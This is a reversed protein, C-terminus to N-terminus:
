FEARVGVSVRNRDYDFGAFDSTSETYNYSVTGYLNDTFRVSLGIYANILDENFDGATTGNFPLVQRGDDFTSGIYDIGGFLSLKPSIAYEGSIGVRFTRRDDFDFLSAGVVRTSDYVESGYRVFSRISFVENVQSRLAVELYPSTFDSGNTADSTELQVGARAIVITSPSFRHEIGVLFFHSASDGAFDDAITDSYRYDFTLVSQPTLQYRFQNYLTYTLRDSNGVANDYDLGTLSFGTYTAFRETWRYGISNDTQWYFYPDLQRTTAFGYAYNPELEYAIFNRSSFRLRETFRRTWNLGVRAQPFLDEAGQAAPQDFYYIAGIRAYVDLTSQPTLNVFTVGAYPNISLGEDNAGVGTATPSVNDDYTLDAGVVWKLPLSEQAESGVYYLSDASAFSTFAAATAVVLSKYNM